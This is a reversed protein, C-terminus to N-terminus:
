TVQCFGFRVIEDCSGESLPLVDRARRDAEDLAGVKRNVDVGGVEQREQLWGRRVAQTGNDIVVGSLNELQHEALVRAYETEGSGFEAVRRRADDGLADREQITRLEGIRLGRQGDHDVLESVETVEPVGLGITSDQEPDGDFNGLGAARRRVVRESSRGHRVEEVVSVELGHIREEEATPKTLFM